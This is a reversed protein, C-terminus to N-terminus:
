EWTFVFKNIIVMKRKETRSDSKQYNEEKEKM